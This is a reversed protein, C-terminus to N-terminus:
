IHRDHCRYWATECESTHFINLDKAICIMSIVQDSEKKKYEMCMTTPKGM